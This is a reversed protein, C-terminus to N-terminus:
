NIPTSTNLFHLDIECLVNESKFECIPDHHNPGKADSSFLIQHSDIKEDDFAYHYISGNPIQTVMITQALNLM